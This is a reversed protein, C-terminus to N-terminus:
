ISWQYANWTETVPNPDFGQLDPNLPQIQKYWLLFDQPVDKAMQQQVRAYALKRKAQDYTHLATDEAADTVASCYESQNYGNPPRNRCMFQASDDPDVGAIWQYLAISYKGRALTGGAGYGGYIVSSLQPHVHLEIGLPALASQIQVAANKMFAQSQEYYLELVLPHAPGFGAQALDRKAAALDYRTPALSKDYAWMFSPLDQTAPEAEGFTLTRALAAKDVAELIARRVHLDNTPAKANNFMLGYYANIPTLVIRIDPLGKISKYANSSAEWMWDLEHTRLQQIETNEDPILKVIVTKLKPRGLFYDDNRTFEIRDGRLWRVFKFPGTGIPASNFPADNIDHLRGLVHEPVIEYPSDSESFVTAVFPAFPRKLHFIVTDADPTDVSAVDDYGNRSIIDNNPNMMAEFSFKVDKSTFPVNDHWKIGHRLRYRITLGDASIDHNDQTPVERALIPVFHGQGDMSILKDAFLSDISNEALQTALLPNLTRPVNSLGIRVTDAITWLHRVSASAPAVSDAVRTCGALLMALGALLWGCRPLARVM